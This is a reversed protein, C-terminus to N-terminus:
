GRSLIRRARALVPADVMAGDVVVVGGGGATMAEVIRRAWAIEEETPSFAANVTEVQRPHICLKAALGLEGSVALDADLQAPDDLRVTVGDIPGPLGAAASAVVLRGRSYAMAAYSAHDVGLEAALDVTGLALRAVGEVAAIADADRVGVATEVLAIVPEGALRTVTDTVAAASDSKPLMVAAGTGALAAVESDHTPTGVGNIRVAARNGEALWALVHTLAAEKAAPAVADELDLVVVDAGSAAAKTFREPRDGPVFLLSRAGAVDITASM